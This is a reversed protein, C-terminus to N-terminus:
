SAGMYILEKKTIFKDQNNLRDFIFKDMAMRDAEPILYYMINTYWYWGM